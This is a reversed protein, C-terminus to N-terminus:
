EDTIESEILELELLGHGHERLLQYRAWRNPFEIRIMKEGERTAAGAMELERLGDKTLALLQQFPGAEGHSM